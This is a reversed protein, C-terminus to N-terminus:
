RATFMSPDLTANPVIDEFEMLKTDGNPFRMRMASLLQSSQDVWLELEALGEQIQKRKPVMTLHYARAPRDTERTEIDFHQRLEAPSSDVFYKQVRRQAAGIDRAQRINRGPWSITLQGGDILVVRVEPENYRLVVRSPREVAVVGHSILPRTLLSSTTTETFRATLTKLTKNVGQSRLYLDDFADARATRQLLAASASAVMAVLCAGAFLLPATFVTRSFGSVVNNLTGRRPRM